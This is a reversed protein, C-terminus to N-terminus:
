VIQLYMLTLSKAFEGFSIKYKKSEFTRFDPFIPVPNCGGADIGVRNMPFNNGCNQCQLVTGKQEFYAYPSGNCVQCTNFATRITGDYATVAIVEMATGGVEVPYFKATESIEGVPITLSEGEKVAQKSGISGANSIGSNSQIVSTIIVIAVIAVATVPFSKKNKGNQSLNGYCTM